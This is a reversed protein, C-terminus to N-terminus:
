KLISDYLDVVQRIVAQRSFRERAFTMGRAGMEARLIPSSLLRLLAGAIEGADCRVVEGAGSESIDGCIGVRDSVVVPIGFAM